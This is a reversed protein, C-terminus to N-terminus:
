CETITRRPTLAYLHTLLRSLGLALLNTLLMSVAYPSAFDFCACSLGVYILTYFLSSNMNM